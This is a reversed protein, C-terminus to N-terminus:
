ALAPSPGSLSEFVDVLMQKMAVARVNDDALSVTYGFSFGAIFGQPLELVVAGPDKPCFLTNAWSRSAAKSSVTFLADGFNEYRYSTGGIQFPGRPASTYQWDGCGRAPNWTAGLLAPVEGLASNDVLRGSLRLPWAFVAVRRGSALFARVLDVDAPSLTQDHGVDVVLGRYAAPRIGNSATVVAARFCGQRNGWDTAFYNLGDLDEPAAERALVVVQPTSYHAARCRGGAGEAQGAGPVPSEAGFGLCATMAVAALLLVLGAARM